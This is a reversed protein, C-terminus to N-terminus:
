RNLIFFNVFDKRGTKSVFYVFSNVKLPKFDFVPSFCLGVGALCVFFYTFVADVFRDHAEEDFLPPSSSHIFFIGVTFTFLKKM